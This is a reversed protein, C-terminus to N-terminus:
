SSGISKVFRSFRTRRGVAESEALPPERACWYCPDEGEAGERALWEKYDRLMDYEKKHEDLFLPVCEDWLPTARNPTFLGPYQEWVRPASMASCYEWFGPAWGSQDWNILVVSGNVRVFVNHLSLNGHTFVPEHGDQFTAALREAVSELHRPCAGSAKRGAEVMDAWEKRAVQREVDGRPKIGRSGGGVADQGPLGRGQEACGPAPMARLADMVKRVEAWLGAKGLETYGNSDCYMDLPLGCLLEQILFYEGSRKDYYTAYLKPVPVNPPLFTKSMHEYALRMNDAERLLSADRGYKVLFGARVCAATIGPRSPAFMAALKGWGEQTVLHRDARDDLDSIWAKPSLRIEGLSPLGGPIDEDVQWLVELNDKM